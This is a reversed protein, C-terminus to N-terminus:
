DEWRSNGGRGEKLIKEVEKEEADKGWKNHRELV